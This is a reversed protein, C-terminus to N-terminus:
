VTAGDIATSHHVAPAAGFASAVAAAATPGGRGLRITADSADALTVKSRLVFMGLRKSITESLSAPLLLEFSDAAIRRLLFTALARGKPSCWASFQSGGPELMEVDNTLQGQLFPVADPGALTLTSLPSLDCVVAADRAATLESPPDGFGTVAAGDFTAGRAHLFDTWAPM